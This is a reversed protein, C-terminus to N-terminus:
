GPTACKSALWAQAAEIPTPTAEDPLLPGDVARGTRDRVRLSMVALTGGNPLRTSWNSTTQGRSPAGFRRVGAQGAFGLATLEGSSATRPGWVLALYRPAHAVAPLAATDIDGRGSGNRLVSGDIRVDRATGDRDVWTELTGPAYLPLLGAVMPWMNGGGNGRLDLVLGCPAGATAQALAARVKTAAEGMRDGAWTNVALVPMPGSLDLEAIPRRASRVRAADGVAPRIPGPASTAASPDAASSAADEVRPPLYFSHGDDLAQLAGRIAATLGAEGPTAHLTDRAARRTAPWDVRPLAYAHAEIAALAQELVADRPDAPPADAAHAACAAALLLAAISHRAHSM